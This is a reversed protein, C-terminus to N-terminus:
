GASAPKGVAVGFGASDSPQANRVTMTVRVQAGIRHGEPAWQQAGIRVSGSGDCGATSVVERNVRIEISLRDPPGQCRFFVMLHTTVPTLTVSVRTQPLEASATAVVRTGAAYEAFGDIATADHGRVPDTHTTSAVAAGGAGLAVVATIAVGATLRQRRRAAVKARVGVLRLQPLIHEAPDASRRALLEQLNSDNM